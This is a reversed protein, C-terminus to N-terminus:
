VPIEAVMIAHLGEVFKRTEERKFQPDSKEICLFFRDRQARSFEPVNFVPHYPMPLRNALLMGLVAGLAACLITVEFTVPFFAPWSNLPRGGVNIPYDIKALYYQMLYGAAAGFIGGFLVVAQLRTRPKGLADTLGEVPFPTYAEIARYGADRVKEAAAILTEPQDFEAMLGYLEEPPLM